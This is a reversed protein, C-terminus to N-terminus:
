AKGAEADPSDARLPEFELEAHWQAEQATHLPPSLAASTTSHAMAPWADAAGPEPVLRYRLGAWRAAGPTDLRAQRSFEQADPMGRAGLGQPQAPHVSLEAHVQLQAAQLRVGQQDLRLASPGGQLLLDKDARISIHEASEELRLRAWILINQRLARIDVDGACAMLRLGARWAFLRMGRAASALLSGGASLSTQAGSSLSLQEGATVHAHAQASAHLSAASGLNLDAPAAAAAAASADGLGRAPLPCALAALDRQGAAQLSAAVEGQEETDDVGAQRAVRAQVHQQQAARLLRARSEQTDDIRGEGRPRADTSLSLGAAARLAGFADSRLEFGEGRPEQRGSSGRIRTIRGLSLAGHGHDCALQAQIQSDTDDFVLHSGRGMAGNGCNPLLERSRWGSLASQEPLDWNPPNDPGNVCGLVLPRDPDGHEFAVIVEQGIRPVGQYGQAGGSAPSAVRIWCSCDDHHMGKAAARRDWPFVVQIRGHLDTHIGHGKPGVVRATQVGHIRPRRLHGDLDRPADAPALRHCCQTQFSCHAELQEDDSEQSPAQGHDESLRIRLHTSSILHPGNQSALAHGSLEFRYGARLGRLAGHGQAIFNGREVQDQRARALRSSIEADHAAADFGAPWHLLRHGAATQVRPPLLSCAEADLQRYPALFDYDWAQTRDGHLRLCTDFGHVVPMDREGQGDSRARLPLCRYAPCPQSDLIAHRDRIVLTHAPAGSGKRPDASAHEFFYSLGWRAMLRVVFEFDTEGYQVQYDLEPYHEGCRLELPWPYASLVARLIDPLRQHQFIRYHNRMHALALWPELRLEIRRGRTDDDLHRVATVIGNICRWRTVPPGLRDRIGSELELCVGLAQGLLADADTRESPSAPTGSRASRRASWASRRDRALVRYSYLKGITEEGELELLRLAPEERWLPMNESLLSVAIAEDPLIRM